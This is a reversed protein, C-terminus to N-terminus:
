DRTPPAARSPGPRRRPLRGAGAGGADQVATIKGADVYIAGRAHVTFDDDMTVVRGTLTMKPGANPDTPVAPTM